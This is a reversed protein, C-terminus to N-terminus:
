NTKKFQCILLSSDRNKKLIKYNQKQKLWSSQKNHLYIKKNKFM